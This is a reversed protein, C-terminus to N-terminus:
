DGVARRLHPRDPRAEINALRNICDTMLYIGVAAALEVAGREGFFEVTERVLEPRRCDRLALQRALEIVLVEAPECGETSSRTEVIKITEVSIGLELAKLSHSGWVDDNDIESATVCIALEVLALPVTTDGTDLTHKIDAFARAITPARLLVGTTGPVRGRVRTVYDYADLAYDPVEGREALPRVNLV